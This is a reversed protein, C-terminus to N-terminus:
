ASWLRFHGFAWVRVKASTPLRRVHRSTPGHRTRAMRVSPPLNGVTESPRLATQWDATTSFGAASTNPLGGPLLRRIPLKLPLRHLNSPFALSQDGGSLNGFQGFGHSKVTT